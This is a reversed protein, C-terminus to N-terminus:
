QSWDPLLPNTLVKNSNPYPKGNKATERRLFSAFVEGSHVEFSLGDVACFDGFRKVLNGVTLVTNSM